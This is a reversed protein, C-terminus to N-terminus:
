EATVSQLDSWIQYSSIWITLDITYSNQELTWLAVIPCQSFLNDSCGTLNKLVAKNLYLECLKYKLCIAYLKITKVINM